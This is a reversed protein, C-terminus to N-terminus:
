PPVTPDYVEKGPKGPREQMLPMGQPRQSRGPSCNPHIANSPTGLPQSPSRRVQADVACSREEIPGLLHLHCLDCRRQLSRAKPRKKRLPVPEDKGLDSALQQLRTVVGGFRAPHHLRDDEPQVDELHDVTALPQNDVQVPAHGVFAPDCFGSHRPHRSLREDEVFGVAPAQEVSVVVREHRAQTFEDGHGRDRLDGVGERLDEPPARGFVGSEEGGGTRAAASHPRRRDAASAAALDGSSTVAAMM